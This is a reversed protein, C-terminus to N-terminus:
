GELCVPVAHSLTFHVKMANADRPLSPCSSDQVIKSRLCGELCVFGHIGMPYGHCQCGHSLTFHRSRGHRWRFRSRRHNNENPPSEICEALGSGQSFSAVTSQQFLAVEPEAKVDLKLRKRPEEMAYQAFHDQLSGDAVCMRVRCDFM